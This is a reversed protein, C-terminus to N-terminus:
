HGAEALIRQRWFKSTSCLQRINSNIFCLNRVVPWELENLIKIKIDANFNGEFYKDIQTM